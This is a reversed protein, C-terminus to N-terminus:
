FLIANAVNCLGKTELTCALFSFLHFKIYPYILLEKLTNNSKLIISLISGSFSHPDSFLEGKM